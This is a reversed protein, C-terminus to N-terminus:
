RLSRGFFIVAQRAAEAHIADRDVGAADVCFGASQQRGLATCTDLFTYHGVGGSYVTQKAGPIERALVEANAKPVAIPDGAGVVIEVPISIRGLSEATLRIDVPAIAFV